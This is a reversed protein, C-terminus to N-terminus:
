KILGEAKMAEQVSPRAAVRAIYDKLVPWKGLDLKLFNTWNLITFLYADAVTFEDGTLYQQGRLGEALYDFRKHLLNLQNEKWEGTVDPNFLPGFPKHVESTLFSLLEMLRYREMTGQAPAVGSEPKQDALYQLIVVAETLIQGDDLQIAPVYGKPNIKTFDDGGATEKKALDVRELEFTLGTERLIIHPALSCAGPTFFLKM